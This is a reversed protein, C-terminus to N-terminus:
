KRKNPDKPVDALHVGRKLLRSAIIMVSAVGGAVLPVVFEIWANANPMKYRVDPQMAFLALVVVSGIILLSRLFSVGSNPTFSAFAALAFVIGCGLAPTFILSPLSQINKERDLPHTEVFAFECAAITGLVAVPILFGVMGFLLSKLIGREIHVPFVKM